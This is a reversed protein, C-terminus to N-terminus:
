PEETVKHKITRNTPQLRYHGQESLVGKEESRVARAAPPTLPLHVQQELLARAPARHELSEHECVGHADRQTGATRGPRPQPYVEDAPRSARTLM